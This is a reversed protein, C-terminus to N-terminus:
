GLWYKKRIINQRQAPQLVAPKKVLVMVKKKEPKKPLLKNLLKKKEM